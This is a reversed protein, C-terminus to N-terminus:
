GGYLNEFQQREAESFDVGFASSINSLVDSGDAIDQFCEAYRQYFNEETEKGTLCSIFITKAKSADSRLLGNEEFVIEIQSLVPEYQEFLVRQEEPMQEYIMEYNFISDAGDTAMWGFLGYVALVPLLVIFIAIGVVYGLFKRGKKDGLLIQLVKSAIKAITAGVAVNV